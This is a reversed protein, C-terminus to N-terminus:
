ENFSLDTGLEQTPIFKFGTSYGINASFQYSFGERSLDIDGSSYFGASTSGLCVTIHQHVSPSISPASPPSWDDVEGEVMM